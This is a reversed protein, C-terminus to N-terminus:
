NAYTKGRMDWAITNFYIPVDVVNKLLNKMMVFIFCLIM